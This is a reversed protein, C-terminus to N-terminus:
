VKRTGASSSPEEQPIASACGCSSTTQQGSPSCGPWTRTPRAFFTGSFVLVDIRERAEQLLALWTERPVSARDPYTGVLESALGRGHSIGPLDPGAPWLFTEEVRLYEAVRFRHRPHPVRGGLWRSVTKPDVECAEALSDLTVARQALVSHLRETVREYLGLGACVHLSLRLPRAAAAAASAIAM